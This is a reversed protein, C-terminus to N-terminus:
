FIIWKKLYFRFIVMWVGGLLHKTGVCEGAKGLAEYVSKQLDENQEALGPLLSM